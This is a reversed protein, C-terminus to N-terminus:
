QKLKSGVLLIKMLYFSINHATMKLSRDWWNIADQNEFKKAVNFTEISAIPKV